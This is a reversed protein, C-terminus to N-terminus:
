KQPEVILRNNPAQAPRANSGMAEHIADIQAKSAEDPTRVVFWNVGESCPPTTLSGMYRYFDTKAPLMKSPDITVGKKAAETEHMPLNDFVAKLASNDKGEKYFVGIVALAGDDAKHVFHAELPYPKGDAVHESPTHFHVQLLSFTKGHTTLTSGNGVNFQVTHGNHLIELEVPKYDTKISVDASVNASKLDIPSQMAGVKCAHYDPSLEGWEAPGGHGQYTWHVAHGEAALAAGAGALSAASLVAAAVMTFGNM